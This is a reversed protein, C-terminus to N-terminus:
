HGLHWACARSRHSVARTLEELHRVHMDDDCQRMRQERQAAPVRRQDLRQEKLRTRRRQERDGSISVETRCDAEEADEVRPPLGEDAMRM